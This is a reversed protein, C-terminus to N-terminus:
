KAPQWDVDRTVNAGPAHRDWEHLQDVGLLRRKVHYYRAVVDYRGTVAEVLAQVAEDSTENALNRASIWTPYSRLRDGIAHDQLLVNFIYARTRIDDKLAETVGLSAKRRLERDPERLLSLAQALVMEEGEITVKIAACLEEFLRVWAGTGVPSVDNLLREEVETL